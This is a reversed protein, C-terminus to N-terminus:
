QYYYDVVHNPLDTGGIPYHAIFEREEGDAVMKMDFARMPVIYHIHFSNTSESDIFVEKSKVAKRVKEVDFWVSSLDEEYYGYCEGIIAYLAATDADDARVMVRVVDGIGDATTEAELWVGYASLQAESKCGSVMPEIEANSGM